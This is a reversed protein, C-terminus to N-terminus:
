RAQLDGASVKASAKEYPGVTGLNEDFFRTLRRFLHVRSSQGTIGHLKRPYLMFDFDKGARILERALAISNAVHVNDDATGHMLLFPAQLGDVFKIPSSADYGDKNAEPHKMYRETYVTDYFRWDSVPSVAAGCRYVGPSKFLAMCTMYGGYSWGWIGIRAPDVYALSKLWAVGAIQDDLEVHGMRKHIPDEWETGRGFSGRNDMSFIIYGRTAMYAHWLYRTGGWRNRVVQVHPGGYTYVLVPYKRSGDFDPPKIMSCQFELGGKLTFRFFEPTPLHYAALEDHRGADITFVESGESKHVTIRRPTDIDSFTDIYYRTDPSFTARHTGAGKSLQRIQRGKEGVQYIHRELNSTKMGTFYVQGRREDVADLSTVMWEGSTLQQKMSGDNDYLYLHSFGDRESNWIFRNKSEYYHRMYTINIWTSRTEHIVERLEGTAADAFFVKLDNQNRNTKEIALHKSDGLWYLRAIYSDDKTDIDMWRSEGKEVDYVGVRVIPNPSGAKPYRQMKTKNYAPIFNVLPFEKVPSEDIQLYAIASADPSWWHARVNGRTFLEEMYVWDLIGNLLSDSGTTTLQIEDGTAANIMWMDNERNFSIWKGDPSFEVNVEDGETTTHRTAEGSKSDLTFIDGKFTFVIKSADSNWDYAGISFVDDDKKQLDDPVPVDDIRCVTRRKGSPVSAIIFVSVTDDSSVEEIVFSVGKSNPLWRIGAPATGTLPPDAYIREITLMKPNPPGPAQPEALVAAAACASLGAIVLGVLVIQTTVTPSKM